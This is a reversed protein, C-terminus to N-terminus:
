RRRGLSDRKGGDFKVEKRKLNKWPLEPAYWPEALQKILQNDHRRLRYLLTHKDNKNGIKARLPALKSHDKGWNLVNL